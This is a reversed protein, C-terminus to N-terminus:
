AEDKVELQYMMIWENNIWADVRYVTEGSEHYALWLPKLELLIKKWTEQFEKRKDIEDLDIQFIDNPKTEIYFTNGKFMIKNVELIHVPIRPPLGLPDVSKIDAM